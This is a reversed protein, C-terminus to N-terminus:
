GHYREASPVFYASEIARTSVAVRIPEQTNPRPNSTGSPRADHCVNAHAGRVSPKHIATRRRESHTHVVIVGGGQPQEAYFACNAEFVLVFLAFFM